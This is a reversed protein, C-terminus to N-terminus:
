GDECVVKEYRGCHCLGSEKQELFEKCICRSDDDREKACLCYGGNQNVLEAVDSSVTVIKIYPM